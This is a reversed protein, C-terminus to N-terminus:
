QIFRYLMLTTLFLMVMSCLVDNKGIVYKQTARFPSCIQCKHIWDFPLTEPRDKNMLCFGIALHPPSLTASFVREYKGNAIWLSDCSGTSCFMRDSSCCHLVCFGSQDLKRYM